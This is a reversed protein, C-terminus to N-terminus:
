NNAILERAVEAVAPTLDPPKIMCNNGAGLVGVLPSFIMAVPYNWAGLIGVVGKPQYIIQGKAGAAQLSFPAKQPKMWKKLKGKHAAAEGAVALVESALTEHPSRHGFDSCAAEVLQDKYQIVAKQLRTLNEKRQDCTPAGRRKFAAKQRNLTDLYPNNELSGSVSALVPQPSSM